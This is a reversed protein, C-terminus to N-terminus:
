VPLGIDAALRVAGASETRRGREIVTRLLTHAAPRFRVDEPADQEATGLLTLTTAFDRRQAYGKAQDLLFAVRREISPSREHDVQAALRLGEVAEGSEVELTVAYM